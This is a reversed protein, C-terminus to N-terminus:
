RPRRHKRHATKKAHRPLALYAGVPSALLLTAHLLLSIWTSYPTASGRFFLSLLLLLATLMCGTILGCLLASHGHLKVASFGGIFSTLYAILIGQIPILRGPDPSFYAALSALLMLILSSLISILFGKAAHLFLSSSGSDAAQRKPSQIRPHRVTEKTKGNNM